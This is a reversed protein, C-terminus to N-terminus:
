TGIYSYCIVNQVASCLFTVPSESRHARHVLENDEDIYLSDALEKGLTGAKEKASDRLKKKVLRDEEGEDDIALQETEQFVIPSQSSLVQWIGIGLLM